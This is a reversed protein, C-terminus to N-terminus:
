KLAREVETRIDDRIAQERNALAPRAFPRAAMKETGYEQAAAHAAGYNLTGTLSGADYTTEASQRLQGTDPAPPNGPSSAIHTVGRRRYERGTRPTENMLSDAEAKVGETGRVVGVMAAQRVAALVAPGNWEVTM